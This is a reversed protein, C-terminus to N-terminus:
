LAVPPLGFPAHMARAYMCVYMCVYICVYMCVYMCVYVYIYIYIYITSRRAFGSRTKLVAAGCVCGSRYWHWTSLACPRTETSAWRHLRFAHLSDTDMCQLLLLTEIAAVLRRRGLALACSCFSVRRFVPDLSHQVTPGRGFVHVSNQLYPLCNLRIFHLM